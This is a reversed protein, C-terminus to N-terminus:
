PLLYDYYAIETQAQIGSGPATPEYNPPIGSGGCGWSTAGSLTFSGGPFHTIDTTNRWQVGFAVGNAGGSSQYNGLTTFGTLGGSITVAGDAIVPQFCLWDVTVAGSNPPTVARGEATADTGQTDGAARVAGGTNDGGNWSTGLPPISQGAHTWQVRRWGRIAAVKWCGQEAASLTATFNGSENGLAEKKGAVVRAAVGANVVTGLVWGSDSMSNLTPQGDCALWAIICDQPQLDTPYTLTWSTSDSTQTGEQVSAIFFPYAM